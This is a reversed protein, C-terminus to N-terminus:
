VRLEYKILVEKLADCIFEIENDQLSTYSPLSITNAGVSESVPLPGSQYMPMQSFAYFGPRCEIGRNLMQDLIADREGAFINSDLKVVNAWSVVDGQPLFEQWTLEKLGKLNEQYLHSIRKKEQIIRQANEFQACGLAAQLNTLRFNFGLIDHWYRKNQNMGHNRIMGCKEFVSKDKLLAFGGEGTTIMKTAQFSFAGADGMTGVLEGNYKSFLSEAADEIVFLGHRDAIEKIEKMACVNGYVHVVIIAKTRLTIAEEIEKPNICWTQSDIDVFVPKAGQALVMNAPAAFTFGPVIVEDGSGIGFGLLALQLATTGNSVSIGFAQNHYQCFEKEFLTVFDGSSVWTSDLAKLVYEKEKGFFTPKAWPIKM